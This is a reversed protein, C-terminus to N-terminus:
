KDILRPELKSAWPILLKKINDWYPEYKKPKPPRLTYCNANVGCEARPLSRVINLLRGGGAKRRLICRGPVGPRPDGSHTVKYGDTEWKELRPNGKRM